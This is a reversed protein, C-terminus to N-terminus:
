WLLGGKCVWEWEARWKGWLLLPRAQYVVPNCLLLLLLLGGTLNLVPRVRGLLYKECQLAPTEPIVDAVIVSRGGATGLLLYCVHLILTRHHPLTHPHVVPVDGLALLALFRERHCSSLHTYLSHTHPHTSHWPLPRVHFPLRTHHSGTGCRPFPDPIHSYPLKQQRCWPTRVLWLATNLSMNGSTHSQSMQTHTFRSHSRDQDM